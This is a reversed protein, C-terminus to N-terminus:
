EALMALQYVRDLPGLIVREGMERERKGKEGENQSWSFSAM